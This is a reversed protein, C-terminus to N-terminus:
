CSMLVASAREGGARESRRNWRCFTMRGRGVVLAMAYGAMRMRVGARRGGGVSDMLLEMEFECVGGMAAEEDVVAFLEEEPDDAVTAAPDACGAARLEYALAVLGAITDLAVGGTATPAGCFACCPLLEDTEGTFPLLAMLGAMGAMGVM